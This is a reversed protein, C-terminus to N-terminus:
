GKVIYHRTLNRDLQPATDCQSPATIGNSQLYYHNAMQDIKNPWLTVSVRGAHSPNRYSYEMYPHGCFARETITLETFGHKELVKEFKHIMKM